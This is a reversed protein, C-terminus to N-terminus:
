INICVSFLSLSLSLLLNVNKYGFVCLEHPYVHTFLFSSNKARKDFEVEVKKIMMSMWM